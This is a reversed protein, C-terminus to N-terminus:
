PPAPGRWPSSPAPSPNTGRGPWAGSWAQRRARRFPLRSNKCPRFLGRRAAVSVLGVDLEAGGLFLQVLGDVGCPGFEGQSGPVIVVNALKSTEKVELPWRRIGGIESAPIPAIEPLENVLIPERQPGVLGPEGIHHETRVSLREGSELPVAADMEPVALGPLGPPRGFDRSPVVM